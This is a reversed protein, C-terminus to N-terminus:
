SCRSPEKTLITISTVNEICVYLYSTLRKIMHMSRNDSAQSTMSHSIHYGFGYEVHPPYASVRVPGSSCTQLHVRLTTGLLALRVQFWPSPVVHRTCEIDSLINHLPFHIDLPRLYAERILFKTKYWIDRDICIIFIYDGANKVETIKDRVRSEEYVRTNMRAM